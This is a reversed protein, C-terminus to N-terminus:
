PVSLVVSPKQNVCSTSPPAMLLFPFTPPFPPCQQKSMPCMWPMFYAPIPPSTPGQEPQRGEWSM